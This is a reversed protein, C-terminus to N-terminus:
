NGIFEKINGAILNTRKDYLQQKERGYVKIRKGEHFFQFQLLGPRGKVPNISGDSYQPKMKETEKQSTEINDNKTEDTILKDIHTKDQAVEFSPIKLIRLEVSGDPNRTKHGRVPHQPPKKQAEYKTLKKFIDMVDRKLEKVLEDDTM